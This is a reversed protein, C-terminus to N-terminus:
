VKLGQEVHPLRVIFCTEKQGDSEASVSGQHMDIIKKVISLGLGNGGQTRNRSKDGKYFREFIHPLDEEAIPEGNNSIRIITENEGSSLKVGVVGGQPAFKIANHILNTWVQSLLDEDATIMVEDLEVDMEIDKEVWQPECALIHNRLQKDLRYSRLEFPHHKSELSSLKLLNDSLKSLRMSETEIITLYHQREDPSLQENQLARSFGSISTLPSQIEHSVNSIFEQRMQELQGLETAMYNISHVIENFAGNPPSVEVNVNFDGRAMRRMAEILTKYFEMQKNRFFRGLISMTVGWLLMGGVSNILQAVVEAPRKQWYAYLWDTLYFVCIWYFTILLFIAM